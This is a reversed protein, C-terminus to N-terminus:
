GRRSYNIRNPDRRLKDWSHKINESHNVWELNEVKNNSRNGDKHNVFDKGKVLPLFLGAVIRQAQLHKKSGNKLTLVYEVYHDRNIYPNMKICILYKPSQNKILFVEGDKNAVYRKDFNYNELESLNRVDEYNINITEKAELSLEYESEQLELM